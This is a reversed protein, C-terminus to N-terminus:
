ITLNKYLIKAKNKRATESLGSLYKENEIDEAWKVPNMRIYDSINELAKDNRIIHDHFYRQWKFAKFKNNKGIERTVASKYSGVIDQLRTSKAPTMAQGVGSNTPTAAKNVGKPGSAKEPAPM